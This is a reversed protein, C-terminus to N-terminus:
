HVSEFILNCSMVRSLQSLNLIEKDEGRLSPGIGVMPVPRRRYSPTAADDSASLIPWTSAKRLRGLLLALQAVSSTDRALFEGRIEISDNRASRLLRSWIAADGQPSRAIVARELKPLSDVVGSVLMIVLFVADAANRDYRIKEWVSIMRYRPGGVKKARVASVV